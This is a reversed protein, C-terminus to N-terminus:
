AVYAISQIFIREKRVEKNKIVSNLKVRKFSMLIVAIVLAVSGKGILPTTKAQAM